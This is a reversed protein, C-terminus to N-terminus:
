AAPQEKPREYVIPNVKLRGKTIAQLKYAWLEPITEPWQSVASKTIGLARATAELTGYHARVDSKLM